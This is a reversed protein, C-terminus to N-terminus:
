ITYVEADDEVGMGANKWADGGGGNGGYRREYERRTNRGMESFWDTKKRYGLRAIAGANLFNISADDLRCHIKEEKRGGSQEM